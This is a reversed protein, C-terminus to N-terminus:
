WTPLPSFYNYPGIAWDRWWYWGDPYLSAGIWMEPSRPDSGAWDFTLTVTGNPQCTQYVKIGYPAADTRATNEATSVFAFACLIAVVGLKRM